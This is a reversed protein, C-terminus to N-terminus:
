PFHPPPSHLRWGGSAEDHRWVQHDSLSRVVQTEQRVYEIQVRQEAQTQDEALIIPPQIVEYATLRVGKLNLADPSLRALLAPDLYNWAMEYYGWRLANGYATTAAELGQIKQEKQVRACGQALLTIALLLLIATRTM